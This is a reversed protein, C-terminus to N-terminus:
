RFQSPLGFLGDKECQKGLDWPALCSFGQSPQHLLSSFSPFRFPRQFFTPFHFIQAEQRLVTPPFFIRKAFRKHRRNHLFQMSLLCRPSQTIHPQQKPLLMQTQLRHLKQHRPMPRPNPCPRTHLLSQHCCSTPYTYTYTYTCTYTCCHRRCRLSLSLVQLLLLLLFPARRRHHHPTSISNHTLHRLIKQRRTTTNTPSPLPARGRRRPARTHAHIDIHTCRIARITMAMAAPQFPGGRRRRREEERMNVVRVLVWRLLLLLLLLVGYM